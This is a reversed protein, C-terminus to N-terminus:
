GAEGMEQIQIEVNRLEEEVQLMMEAADFKANSPGLIYNYLVEVLSLTELVIDGSVIDKFSTFLTTNAENEM